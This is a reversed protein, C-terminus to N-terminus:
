WVSVKAIDTVKVRWTKGHRITRGEDDVELLYVAAKDNDHFDAVHDICGAIIRADHTEMDCALGKLNVLLLPLGRAEKIDVKVEYGM